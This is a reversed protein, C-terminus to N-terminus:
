GRGGKAAQDEYFRQAGEPEFGLIKIQADIRTLQLTIDRRRITLFRLMTMRMRAYNEITKTDTEQEGTLVAIQAKLKEIEAKNKM